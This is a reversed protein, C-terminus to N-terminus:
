VQLKDKIRIFTKEGIRDINKIDDISSFRGNEKRYDIIKQATVDGIGPISKLQEKSATNLNIKKNEGELEEKNITDKDEKNKVIICDEDKLKRSQNIDNIFAKKTFGGSKKVLTQIRSDKEIEYVGPNKVEGKIEVIIKDNKKEINKAEGNEKNSEIFIDEQNINTPKVFFYGVMSIMIFLSAIVISGIFKNKNKM